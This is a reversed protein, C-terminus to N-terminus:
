TTVKGGILQGFKKTWTGSSFAAKQGNVIACMENVHRKQREDLQTFLPSGRRELYHDYRYCPTPLPNGCWGHEIHNHKGDKQWITINM